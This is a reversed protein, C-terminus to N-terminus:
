NLTEALIVENNQSISLLFFLVNYVSFVPLSLNFAIILCKILVWTKYKTKNSFVVMKLYFANKCMEGMNQGSRVVFLNIIVAENPM